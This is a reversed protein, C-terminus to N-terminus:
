AFTHLACRRMNKSSQWTSSNPLQLITNVSEDIPRCIRRAPTLNGRIIRVHFGQVLALIACGVQLSASVVEGEGKPRFSETTRNSFRMIESSNRNLPRSCHLQFLEGYPSIFGVNLLRENSRVIEIKPCTQIVEVSDNRSPPSIEGFLDRMSGRFGRTYLARVKCLRPFLTERERPPQRGKHGPLPSPARVDFLM